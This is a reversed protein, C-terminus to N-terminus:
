KVTENAYVGWLEGRQLWGKFGGADLRCWRGECELLQALAGPEARAVPPASPEPQRRLTRMEGMVLVYRRSSLMSQHVWGETGEWDRIKRWHEFEALVEVPLNKRRIVWDVPYRVGPGTRLNVEDSRLSVYRPVPLSDGGRPQAPAELSGALWLILSLGAVAFRAYMGVNYFSAHALAASAVGAPPDPLQCLAPQVTRFPRAVGQSARM